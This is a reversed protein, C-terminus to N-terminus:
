ISSYNKFENTFRKDLSYQLKLLFFLRLIKNLSNKFLITKLKERPYTFGFIANLIKTVHNKATVKM